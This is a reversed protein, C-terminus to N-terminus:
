GLGSDPDQDPSLGNTGTPAWPVPACVDGGGGTTLPHGSAAPPLM